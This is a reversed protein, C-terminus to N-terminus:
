RRMTPPSRRSRTAASCRTATARRRDADGNRGAPTGVSHEMKMAEIVVVAAHEASRPGRRPAFRSSAVRCPHPSPPAVRRRRGRTAGGRRRHAAARAQDGRVPGRRRRAGNRRLGGRRTGPRGAAGARARQEENDSALWVAAPANTRWGGAWPDTGSAREALLARGAARWAPGRPVPPAPLALEALTDTRMQGDRLVPQDALWRLFRLNTRVGLIHTSALAKRLRELAEARDRGHAVVKALMPDFRDTVEDGARVGADVRIGDGSPWAIRWSGARPPCSARRRMRPTSGSRSPMALAAPGRAQTVPLALGDAIRLQDAVLDRGTVAETVPHEVQLRTNMELFFFEDGDALLFEVTGPVWTAWTRRSASPPPM